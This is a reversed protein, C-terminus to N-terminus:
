EVGKGVQATLERLKKAFEPDVPPDPPPNYLEKAGSAEVYTPERAQGNPPKLKKRDRERAEVGAMTKIDLKVLNDIIANIYKISRANNKVAEGIAWIIVDNEVGEKQWCALDDAEIPTIPHINNSFATVLEKFNNVPAASHNSESQIHIPNSQIVPADSQMQNGNIDSSKKHIVVGDPAPYKSRHARVQQHKEWTVMYLYDKGDVSYLSILGRAALSDLWSRIDDDTVRDIRLPFCKARLIPLRADMRGYDDCNVLVRYFFVEEEPKLNDIECSTCISEKIIRNPM